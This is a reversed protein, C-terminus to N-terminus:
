SSVEHVHLHYLKSDTTECTRFQVAPAPRIGRNRLKQSLAARAARAAPKTAWGELGCPCTQATLPRELM